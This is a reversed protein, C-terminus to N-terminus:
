RLSALSAFQSMVRKYYGETRDKRKMCNRDGSNWLRIAKEMDGEPNHYEQYDIFMDISKQKDYRDAYTYKKYGAIRNCERVLIESIQLYGVYLGNRSVRKPNGESEVMAIAQIVPNWKKHRDMGPVAKALALMSVTMLVLVLLKKM